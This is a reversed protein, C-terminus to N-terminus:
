KTLLAFKIRIGSSGSVTKNLSVISYQLLMLPPFVEFISLSSKYTKKTQCNCDFCLTIFICHEHIIQVNDTKIIESESSLGNSRGSESDSIFASSPMSLPLSAVNLGVKELLFSWPFSNGHEYKNTKIIKWAKLVTLNVPNANLLFVNSM